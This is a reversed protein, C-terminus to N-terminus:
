NKQWSADYKQQTETPTDIHIDLENLKIKAINQDISEPMIYMRNGLKGRNQVLYEAALVIQSFTLDMISSPNGGSVIINAVGGETFLNVSKGDDLTFREIFASIKEVKKAYQRIGCVDIESYGSGCNLLFAGSKLQRAVSLPLVDKSGTATIFVDGKSAAEKLPMVQYGNLYAELAKIPDIECVIVNAGMGKQRLAIGRGVHGYGIVVVTQGALLLGTAKIFAVVSSQGVGYYNDFLHKIKSSNVAFAPHLLMGSKDMLKLKFVGSTTQETYGILHQATEQHCEYLMSLIGAAEDLLLDPEFDIIKEKFATWEETTQGSYGFVAIDYYKVLVAAIDDQISLSNSAVLMVDAGGSKLAVCAVATEKTVHSCVAIKLGKFPLQVSFRGDIISLVSMEEMATQLRQLGQEALSIDLICYKNNKDM